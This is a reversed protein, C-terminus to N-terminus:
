KRNSNINNYNNNYDTFRSNTFGGVSKTFTEETGAVFLLSKKIFLNTNPAPAM